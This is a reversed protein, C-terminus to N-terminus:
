DVTVEKRTECTNAAKKVQKVIYMSQEDGVSQQNSEEDAVNITSITTGLKVRENQVELKAPTQCGELTTSALRMDIDEAPDIGKNADGEDGDNLRAFKVVSGGGM